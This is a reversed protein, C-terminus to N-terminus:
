YDFSEVESAASVNQFISYWRYTVHSVTFRVFEVQMLRHNVPLVRYNSKNCLFIAYHLM